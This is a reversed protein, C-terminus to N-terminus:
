PFNQSKHGHRHKEDHSFSSTNRSYERTEGDRWHHHKSKRHHKHKVRKAKRWGESSEHDDEDDESAYRKRSRRDGSWHDSYLDRVRVVHNVDEDSVNDFGHHKHHSHHNPLTWSMSPLEDYARRHHSRVKDSRSATASLLMSTEHSGAEGMDVPTSSHSRPYRESGSPFPRPSRSKSKM